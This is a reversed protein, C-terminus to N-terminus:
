HRRCASGAHDHRHKSEFGLGGTSIHAYEGDMFSIYHTGQSTPGSLNFFTVERPEVPNSIDYVQFGAPDLGYNNVQYAMLLTDGRMALSNGRVHTGPLKLQWVMKPDRPETVDFISFAVPWNENAIYMYRRGNKAIKMAMGEGLNPAGGADHRGLLKLNHAIRVESM